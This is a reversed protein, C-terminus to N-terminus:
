SFAFEQNQEGKGITKLHHCWIVFTFLEWNRRLTIEHREKWGSQLSACVMQM